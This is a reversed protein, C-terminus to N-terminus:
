CLGSPSEPEPVTGSPRSDVTVGLAQLLVTAYTGAPLEFCITISGSGGRDAIIPPIALIVPVLLPRRTGPLDRGVSAFDARAVGVDALAADEIARARTDPPPERAWGGPMPGTVVLEGVDIRPQDTAPDDTVFVGGTATKQLVDGPVVQRLLDDAERLQLVRNFVAAQAASLLLRRRRHDRERAQGRL